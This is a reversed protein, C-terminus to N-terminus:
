GHVEGIERYAESEVQITTHRIKYRAELLEKISNLIRDSHSLTAAELVVHGSLATMGSTISWVHLDHVARVGPIAQIDDSVCRLEIGAPSAELLVDVSERVLRVAGYIIIVGIIASLLPDIRVWGTFTIVLGSGLVGVSSLADGIIHMVAGRVNVCDRSAGRLLVLSIVNALLGITAVLLVVKGAVVPPNQFRRWAEVLIGISIVVLLVGNLLAALIELRYYGYSVRDPARRAAMMLAFLALGLALVDTLMHGADSLLALSNSAIGGAFEAVMVTATLAMAV